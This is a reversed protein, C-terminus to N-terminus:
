FTDGRIAWDIYTEFFTGGDVNINGFSKLSDINSEARSNETDLSSINSTATTNKSNLGAINNLANNNQTTLNSINSTATSNQTTLNTINSSATSNKSNLSSVNSQATNNAAGLDSINKIAQTNQTTENTINTTAKANAQQLDALNTDIYLKIDALAEVADASSAIAEVNEKYKDIAANGATITNKLDALVEIDDQSAELVDDALSSDVNFTFTNTSSLTDSTYIQVEGQIIGAVNTAQADLTATIVGNSVSTITKEILKGDSKKLILDVSQSTLDALIANNFVKITLTLTDGRKVLQTCEVINKIQIDIPIYVNKQM